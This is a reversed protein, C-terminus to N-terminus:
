PVEFVVAGLPPLTLRLSCPQGHKEVADAKVSGLNGVGSGGYCASDTNLVEKYTGARPVGVLYESRVVPTFNFVWLLGTKKERSWRVFSIALNSWDSAARRM